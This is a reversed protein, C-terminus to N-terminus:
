EHTAGKAKLAALRHETISINNLVCEQTVTREPTDKKLANLSQHWVDLYFKNEDIRGKVVEQQVYAQLADDFVPESCDLNGCTLYGGAGIFLSKWGCAPCKTKITRHLEDDSHNPQTTMKTVPM